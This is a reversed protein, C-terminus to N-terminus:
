NKEMRRMFAGIDDLRFEFRAGNYNSSARVNQAGANNLLTSIEKEPDAVKITYRIEVEGNYNRRIDINRAGNRQLQSQMEKIPDKFEVNINVYKM